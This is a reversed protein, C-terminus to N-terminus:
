GPFHPDDQRVAESFLQCFMSLHAGHPFHFNELHLSTSIRVNGNSTKWFSEVATTYVSEGVIAACVVVTVYKANTNFFTDYILKSRAAAAAPSVGPTAVKHSKTFTFKSLINSPAAGGRLPFARAVVSLRNM